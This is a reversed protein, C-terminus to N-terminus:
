LVIRRAGDTGLDFVENAGVSAPVELRASGLLSTVPVSVRSDGDIQQEVEGEAVLNEFDDNSYARLAFRYRDPPLFVTEEESGPRLVIPGGGEGVIEGEEFMLKTDGRFVDVLASRVGSEGTKPDYPVGQVSLADADAAASLASFVRVEKADGSPAADESCAALLLLVLAASWHLIPNSKM